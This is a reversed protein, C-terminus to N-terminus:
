SNYIKEFHLHNTKTKNALCNHVFSTRTEFDKVVPPPVYEIGHKDSYDEQQRKIFLEKEEDNKVQPYMNKKESINVKDLFLKKGVLPSM